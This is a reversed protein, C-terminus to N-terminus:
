ARMLRTARNVNRDISQPTQDECGARRMFTMALRQAGVMQSALIAETATEPCLEALMATAKM